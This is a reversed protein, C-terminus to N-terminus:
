VDLATLIHHRDRKQPIKAPFPKNGAEDRKRAPMGVSGSNRWPMARMAAPSPRVPAVISSCSNPETNPFCCIDM